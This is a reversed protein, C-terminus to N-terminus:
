AGEAVNDHEGAPIVGTTLYGEGHVNTRTIGIKM